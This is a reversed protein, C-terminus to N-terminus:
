GIVREVALEVACGDLGAARLYARAGGHSRDLERLVADIVWPAPAPQGHMAPTLAYDAAIAAREVGAADLLLACVVGTRDRGAACQVVM